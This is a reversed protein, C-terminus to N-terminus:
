SVGSKSLPTRSGRGKQLSCSEYLEPASTRLSATLGANTQVESPFYSPYGRAAAYGKNGHM